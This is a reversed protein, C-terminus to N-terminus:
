GFRWQCRVLLRDYIVLGLSHGADAHHIREDVVNAGFATESQQASPRSMHDEFLADSADGRQWRARPM